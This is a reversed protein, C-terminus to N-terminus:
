QPCRTVSWTLTHTSIIFLFGFAYSNKTVSWTLTHTSIGAIGNQKYGWATM